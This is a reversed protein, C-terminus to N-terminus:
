KPSATELKFGAGLVNFSTKVDRKLILAVIIVIAVVIVIVVSTRPNM